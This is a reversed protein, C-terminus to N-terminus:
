NNIRLKKPAKDTRWERKRRLRLAGNLGPRLQTELDLKLLYQTLIPNMSFISFGCLKEYDFSLM